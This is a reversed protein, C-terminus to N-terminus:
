GKQLHNATRKTYNIKYIEIKPTKGNISILLHFREPYRKPLQYVYQPTKLATPWNSIVVYTNSRNAIANWFNEEATPFYSCNRDSYYWIQRSNTFILSAEPTNDRIWHGAEAYGEYKWKNLGIIMSGELLNIEATFLLIIV